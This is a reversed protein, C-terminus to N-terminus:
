KDGGSSLVQIALFLLLAWWYKQLFTKEPEKGELKGEANLVIPKNLVPQPGRARQVVEVEVENERGKGQRRGSTGFGIHYVEGKEDVHLVFKKRYEDRFSAASTVVGKWENNNPDFLGIRLLHQSTYAGTPPTYSSLSALSTSSDYVIQALPTPTPLSSSPNSADASHLPHSYITITSAFALPLYLLSLLRMKTM